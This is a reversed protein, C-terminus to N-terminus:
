RRKQEAIWEGIRAELAALPVSGTALVADNFDRLDFKAGLEQTARARLQSIRMQGIKYALAQAPTGIYRDIENVIDQETKPSHAKFYAIAQERSWGKLHM